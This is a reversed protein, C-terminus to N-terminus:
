VKELEGGMRAVTPKQFLGGHPKIKSQELRESQGALSENYRDAEMEYNCRQSAM